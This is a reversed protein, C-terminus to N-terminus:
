GRRPLWVFVVYGLFVSALCLLSGSVALWGVFTWLDLGGPGVINGGQGDSTSNPPETTTIELRDFPLTM